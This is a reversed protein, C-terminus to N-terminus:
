FTTFKRQIEKKKPLKAVKKGFFLSYKSIRKSIKVSTGIKAGL